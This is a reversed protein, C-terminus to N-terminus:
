EEYCRCFRTAVYRPTIIGGSVEGNPGEHPLEPASADHLTGTCTTSGASTGSIQITQLGSLAGATTSGGGSVASLRGRGFLVAVSAAVGAVAAVLRGWASLTATTTASGASSGSIAGQVAEGLTGTATASGTSTGVAFMKALMAGVAAAAGAVATSIRGWGTLTGTVTASGASTGAIPSPAPLLGFLVGINVDDASSTTAHSRAGTAAGDSDGSYMFVSGDTGTSTELDSRNTLTPNTGSITGATTLDNNYVGIAVVHCIANPDFTAYTVTDSSANASATPTATDIPSGTTICGSFRYCVGCFLINNDTPKTFNFTAGDETGAARKWFISVRQNVTNNSAHVSTWTGDPASVTQNDKGLVVVILIDNADVTAPAVVALTTTTANSALAGASQFTVPM